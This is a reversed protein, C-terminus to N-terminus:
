GHARVFDRRFRDRRFAEDLHRKRTDAVWRVRRVPDDDLVVRGTLAIRGALGEPARRLDVLDVIDPLAGALAWLDIPSEAWVALDVDSAEAATGDAHSGFVLAFRVGHRRLERRVEDLDLPLEM